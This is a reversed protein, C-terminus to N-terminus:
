SQPVLWLGWKIACTRPFNAFIYRDTITNNTLHFLFVMIDCVKDSHDQDQGRGRSRAHGYGHTPQDVSLLFVTLLM